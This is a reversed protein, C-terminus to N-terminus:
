SSYSINQRKIYFGLGSSLLLALLVDQIGLQGLSGLVMLLTPASASVGSLLRISDKSLTSFMELVIKIFLYSTIAVLLPVALFMVAPLSQPNTFFLFLNIFLFGAACTVIDKKYIRTNINEM